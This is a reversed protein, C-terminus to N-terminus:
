DDDDEEDEDDDDEGFHNQDRDRKKKKLYTVEIISNEAPPTKFVINRGQVKFDINQAPILKVRVSNKVPKETLEM